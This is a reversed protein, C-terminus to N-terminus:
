RVQEVDLTAMAQKVFTLFVPWTKRVAPDFAKGTREGRANWQRNLRLIPRLAVVYSQFEATSLVQPTGAAPSTASPKGQSRGCGALTTGLVLATLVALVPRLNM